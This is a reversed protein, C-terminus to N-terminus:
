RRSKGLRREAGRTAALSRANFKAIEKAITAEAVQKAHVTLLGGFLADAIDAYRIENAIIIDDGSEYNELVDDIMNPDPHELVVGSRAIEHREDDGIDLNRATPINDNLGVVFTSHFAGSYLHELESRGLVFNWADEAALKPIREAAALAARTQTRLFPLVQRPTIFVPM